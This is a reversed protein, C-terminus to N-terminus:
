IYPEPAAGPETLTLEADPQAQVAVLLVGDHSVTVEPELPDPFPVTENETVALVEANGRTPVRVM